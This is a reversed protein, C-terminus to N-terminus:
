WYDTPGSNVVLYRSNLFILCFIPVELLTITNFYKELQAGRLRGHDIAKESVEILILVQEFSEPTYHNQVIWDKMRELSILHTGPIGPSKTILFQKRTTARCGQLLQVLNTETYVFCSTKWELNRWYFRDSGFFVASKTVNVSSIRLPFGSTKHLQRYNKFYFTFCLNLLM